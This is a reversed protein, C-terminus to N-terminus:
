GKPNRVHAVFLVAGTKHDRIMVYFPRDVKMVHPSRVLGKIGMAVATAASAEAGSEFVDLVAQHVVASVYLKKTGDIGSFDAARSFALPMGMAALTPALGFNGNVKFRPLALSVATSEAADIAASWARLSPKAAAEGKAPLAPLVVDLELDFAGASAFPLEIIQADKTEAFRAHRMGNMTPVDVDGGAAHFKAPQTASPVFPEVWAGKLHIANVLTLRTDKDLVGKAILEPIAKGTRESVWQNIKTRAGETAAVYDVPELAAGYRDKTLALFAPLFSYGQQGFLRNAVELQPERDGNAAKAGASAGSWSGLLESWSAHVKADELGDLHLTKAMETATAGRAGGYTMALAAAISAPAFVLNGAKDDLRGLLDDGFAVTSDAVKAADGKSATGPATPPNAANAANASSASTAPAATDTASSAPAAASSGAASSAPAAPAPKAGSSGCASTLTAAAALLLPVVPASRRLLNM